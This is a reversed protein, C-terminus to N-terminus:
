LLEVTIGQCVWENTANAVSMDFDVDLVRNAADSDVAIGAKSSGIPAVGSIEDNGLNGAGTAPAITTPGANTWFGGGVQVANGQAVVNFDLWWPQLDADASTGFSTTLDQFLVTGGYTIRITVDYSVANNHLFTGWARVRIIRGALFLGDPIVPASAFLSETAVSNNVVRQATQKAIVIPGQTRLVRM